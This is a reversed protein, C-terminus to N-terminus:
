CGGECLTISKHKYNNEDTSYAVKIIGYEGLKKLCDSVSWVDLHMKKSFVNNSVTCRGHEVCYSSIIAFLAFENKNLEIGNVNM